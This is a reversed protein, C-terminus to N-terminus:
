HEFTRSCVELVFGFEAGLGAEVRSLDVGDEIL